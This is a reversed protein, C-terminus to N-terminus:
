SVLVNVLDDGQYEYIPNIMPDLLEIVGFLPALRSLHDRAQSVGFPDCGGLSIILVDSIAAGVEIALLVRKNLDIRNIRDKTKIGIGGLRDVLEAAFRGVVGAKKIYNIVTSKSWMDFIHAPRANFSVNENERNGSIVEIISTESFWCTGEPLRLRIAASRFLTFEPVLLNGSEFSSCVILEGRSPNAM